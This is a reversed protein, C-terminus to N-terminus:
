TQMVYIEFEIFLKDTNTTNTIIQYQGPLMYADTFKGYTDAATGGSITWINFWLNGGYRHNFITTQADSSNANSADTHKVSITTLEHGFPIDFLTTVASGTQAIVDLTVLFHGHGLFKITAGPIAPLPAVGSAPVVGGLNVGFNM